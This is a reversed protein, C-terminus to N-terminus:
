STPMVENDVANYVERFGTSDRARSVTMGNRAVGMSIVPAVEDKGNFRGRPKCVDNTVDGHTM